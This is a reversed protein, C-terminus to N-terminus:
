QHEGYYALVAYPVNEGLIEYKDLKQLARGIVIRSKRKVFTKKNRRTLFVKIKQYLINM